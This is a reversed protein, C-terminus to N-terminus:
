IQFNICIAFCRHIRQHFERIKRTLVFYLLIAELFLEHESRRHKWIDSPNVTNTVKGKQHDPFTKVLIAMFVNSHSRNSTTLPALEPKALVYIDAFAVPAGYLDLVVSADSFTLTHCHRIYHPDPFVCINVLFRLYISGKFRIPATFKIWCGVSM